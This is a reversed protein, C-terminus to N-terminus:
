KKMIGGFWKKVLRNMNQTQDTVIIKMSRNRSLKQNIEPHRKLYEKLKKPIIEDPSIIKVNKPLIKKIEKKLIPYHTCGLVLSDLNKDM